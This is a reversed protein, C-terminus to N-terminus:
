VSVIEVRPLADQEDVLRTIDQPDSTIVTANLRAALVAVTADVIDTTKATACLQGVARALAGDMPWVESGKLLMALRAQRNKRWAQAVVPAPVVPRTGMRLTTAHYRWVARDEREAALLAGADYLLLGM